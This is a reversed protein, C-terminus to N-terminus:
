RIRFQLLSGNVGDGFHLVAGQVEIEIRGSYPVTKEITRGQLLAHYGSPEGFFWAFKHPSSAAVTNKITKGKVTQNLQDSLVSAEPIEIM